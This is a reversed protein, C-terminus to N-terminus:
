MDVSRVISYMICNYGAMYPLTCVQDFTFRHGQMNVLLPSSSHFIPSSSNWYLTHVTQSHCTPLLLLLLLLLLPLLAGAGRRVLPCPPLPPLPLLRTGM